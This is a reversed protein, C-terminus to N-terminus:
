VFGFMVVTKKNEAGIKFCAVEAEHLGGQAARRRLFPLGENRVAFIYQEFIKVHEAVCKKGLFAEISLSKDYMPVPLVWLDFFGEIEWIRNIGNGRM